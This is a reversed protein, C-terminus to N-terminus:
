RLLGGEGSSNTAVDQATFIRVLIRPRPSIFPVSLLVRSAFNRRSIGPFLRIMKKTM